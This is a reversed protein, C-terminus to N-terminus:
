YLMIYPFWWGSLNGDMLIPVQCPVFYTKTKLKIDFKVRLITMKHKMERPVDWSITVMTVHQFNESIGLVIKAAM